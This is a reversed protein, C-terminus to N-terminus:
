SEIRPTEPALHHRRAPRWIDRLARPVLGSWLVVGVLGFPLNLLFLPYPLFILITMVVRGVPGFTMSGSKWRSDTYIKARTPEAGGPRFGGPPDDTTGPAAPRFTSAVPMPAFCLGCWAAGSAVSAACTPCRVSVADSAMIPKM